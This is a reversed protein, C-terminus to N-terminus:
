FIVSNVGSMEQKMKKNQNFMMAENYGHKSRSKM